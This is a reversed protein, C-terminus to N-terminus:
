HKLINELELLSIDHTLKNLEVDEVWDIVSLDGYKVTHIVANASVFLNHHILPTSVFYEGASYKNFKLKGDIVEVMVVWGSQIIYMERLTTHYHANQWAGENCSVTRIYSSGDSANLRFRLEGNDMMEHLTTIGLKELENQSLKRPM